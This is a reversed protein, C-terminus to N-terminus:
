WSNKKLVVGSKVPLIVTRVNNGSSDVYITGLDVAAPSGSDNPNVLVAGDSFDRRFV